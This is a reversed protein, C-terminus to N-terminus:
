CVQERMFGANGWTAFGYFLTWFLPWGDLELSVIERFLQPAPVFYAVFSAGTYLGFLAWLLHKGGKRLLKEATWPSQDLRMRAHRDGETWHEIWLFAETWVTQPCAYGCWIRGAITTVLFLTLAAIMLLWTLYILDQPILTLGLLHFRRHPLDFFVLPQGHWHLWPLVYYLGLLALVAAIRLNAFRGSARRPHIKQASQYLLQSTKEASSTM